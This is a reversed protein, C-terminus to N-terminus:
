PRGRYDYCFRLEAVSGVRDSRRDLFSSYLVSNVEFYELTAPVPQACLLVGAPIMGTFVLTLALVALIIKKRIGLDLEM